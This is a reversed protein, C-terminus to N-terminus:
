IVRSPEGNVGDGTKDGEVRLPTAYGRGCGPCVLVNEVIRRCPKCHWRRV